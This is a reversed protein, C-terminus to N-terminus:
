VSRALPYDPRTGFGAELAAMVTLVTADRWHPAAVQVGVPLGASGREVRQAAREALDRGPERDTEEGSRVRTAAVVGAPMGTANFLVAYSGALFLQETAGHQPAVTAFPPCILADLSQRDMAEVFRKRHAGTEQALLWYDEVSRRGANRAVTALGGQDFRDLLAVVASRAPRPLSGGHLAPRLLRHATEGDLADRLWAFGDASAIGLFREVAGLPDPPSFPEVIAGREALIRGAEEVARVIAPSARFVSDDTYLGIRRGSVDAGGPDDWPVPPIFDAFREPGPAALVSMALRLDAIQRGMPGPQAVIAEQGSVSRFPELPTDENTLRRATPKFGHIGSFHAPIRISGGLDSGLGLASGGRQLIAAEGGSSGGPTRDSAEPHVTPGFVPNDTEWAFLMQMANTKGLIIAGARRLRRVLPGDEAAPQGVRHKLGLTTDLGAVDLQDKITVPVGALPGLAEGRARARDVASAERRAADFRRIVVANLDADAHEIRRIFADIVEAASIEGAHIKTALELAGSGAPPAPPSCSRAVAM